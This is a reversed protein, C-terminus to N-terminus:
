GHARGSCWVLKGLADPALQRAQGFLLASLHRCRQRAQDRGQLWLADVDEARADAVVGM